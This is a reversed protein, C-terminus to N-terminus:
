DNISLFGKKGTYVKGIRNGLRMGEECDMRFHVGLHMRSRANENAMEFFSNFTRPKGLFEKRGEHSNDTLNFTSGFYNELIVAATAGFVSHGSPYAPFSPAPIM